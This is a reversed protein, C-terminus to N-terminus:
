APQISSQLVPVFLPRLAARIIILTQDLSQRGHRAQGHGTVHYVALPLEPRRLSALAM